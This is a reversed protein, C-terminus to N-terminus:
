VYSTLSNHSFYSCILHFFNHRRPVWSTNLQLHHLFHRNTKRLCIKFPSQQPRSQYPRILISECGRREPLVSHHRFLMNRCIIDIFSFHIGHRYRWVTSDWQSQSHFPNSLFKGGVFSKLEEWNIWLEIQVNRVAKLLCQRCQLRNKNKFVFNKGRGNGLMWRQMM